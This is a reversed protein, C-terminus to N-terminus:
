GHGLDLHATRYGGGDDPLWTQCQVVKGEAGPETVYFRLLRHSHDGHRQLNILGAVQWPQGFTGRHLDVDTSSLGMSFEVGHPHTHWWGVLRDGDPERSLTRSLAQFSDSTFTFHVSSAGSHEATIVRALKVLVRDDDIGARYPRGILFGGEELTGSLPLEGIVDVMEQTLLVSVRELAAQDVGAGKLDFVPLTPEAAKRISFNVGRPRDLDVEVSNEVHPAARSEGGVRLHLTKTLEDLQGLLKEVNGIATALVEGTTSDRIEVRPQGEHGSRMRRMVFHSIARGDKEDLTLPPVQFTMREGGSPHGILFQWGSLDPEVKEMLHRLAPGFLEQVRYQNEHLVAGGRTRVAVRVWGFDPRGNVLAGRGPRRPDRKQVFLLEIEVDDDEPLTTGRPLSMDLGLRGLLGLPQIEYIRGLKENQVLTAGAATGRAELPM